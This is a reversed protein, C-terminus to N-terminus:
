QPRPADQHRSRRAAPTQGRRTAVARRCRWRHRSSRLGGGRATPLAGRPPAGDDAITVRVRTGDASAYRRRAHWPNDAPRWTCRRSRKRRGPGGPPRNPSRRRPPRRSRLRQRHRTGTDPHPGRHHLLRGGRARPRLAQRSNTSSSTPRWEALVDLAAALGAESLAAPYVSHAITRLRDLASRLSAQAIGLQAATEEDSTNRSVGIAIALAALGQQAGDHLDRELRRRERDGATVIMTRSRQLREVHARLAGPPAAHDLALRAARELEEVLRPDDLLGRRHVVLAVVEGDHALAGNGPESTPCRAHEGVSTSGATTPPTSCSSRRTTSRSRSCRVSSAPGRATAM